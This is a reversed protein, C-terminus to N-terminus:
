DARSACGRRPPLRRPAGPLARHQDERRRRRDGALLVRQVGPGHGEQVQARRTPIRTPVHTAGPREPTAGPRGALPPGPHWCALSIRAPSTQTNTRPSRPAPNPPAGTSASATSSSTGRACRARWATPGPGRHRPYPIRPSGLTAADTRKPRVVPAPRPSAPGRVHEALIRRLLEEEGIRQVEGRGEEGAGGAAAGAPAGSSDRRPKGRPTIEAGEKADFDDYLVPVVCEGVCKYIDRVRFRHLLVQADQLAQARRRADSGPPGAAEVDRPGVPPLLEIRRLITDDLQLFSWPNFERTAGDLLAALVAGCHDNYLSLIDAVMFELSKVVKHTYVQPPNHRRCSSRAAPCFPLGALFRLRIALPAFGSSAHMCRACRARQFLSARAHFLEYINLAESHKFCIDARATLRMPPAARSLPLLLRRSPARHPM